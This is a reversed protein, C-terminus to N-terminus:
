KKSESLLSQNRSYVDEKENEFIDLSKKLYSFFRQIFIRLQESEFLYFVHSGDFNVKKSNNLNLFFNELLKAEDLGFTEQSQLLKEFDLNKFFFEHNEKSLYTTVEGDGKFIFPNFIFNGEQDKDALLKIRNAKNSVILRDCNQSYLVQFDKQEKKTTLELKELKLDKVKQATKIMSKLMGNKVKTLPFINKKLYQYLKNESSKLELAETLDEKSFFNYSTNQSQMIQFNLKGLEFSAIGLEEDFIFESINQITGGYFVLIKNETQILKKM